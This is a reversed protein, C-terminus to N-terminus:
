SLEAVSIGYREMVLFFVRPFSVCIMAVKIEYFASAM